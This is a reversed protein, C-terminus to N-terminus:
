RLTDIRIVDMGRQRALAVFHETLDGASRSVGDSVSVATAKTRETEALRVAEDLIRNTAQEYALQDIAPEFGMEILDDSARAQACLDDYLPGWDGPRDTVSSERFTKENFPLVIRFRMGLSRAIDLGLLDAGCAASAALTTAQLETFLQQLKARVADVRAPPFRPTPANAADIRRGALAIAASM